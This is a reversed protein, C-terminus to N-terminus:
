NQGSNKQEMVGLIDFITIKGQHKVFLEHYLESTNMKGWVIARRILYPVPSHPDEKLLYAAIDELAAYATARNDIIQHDPKFGNTKENNYIPIDRVETNIPDGIEIPSEEQTEFQVGRKILEGETMLRIDDLLGLMLQLSPAHEACLDDLLKSLLEIQYLALILDNYLDIYFETSTASVAMYISQLVPEQNKETGIRKSERLQENRLAMEWDSWHYEGEDRGSATIPILSLVPPLKENIWSIVNTRYELDGEEIKPYLENWFRECLIRMLCICPAIGHFGYEHIQAELLWVALQLDKSKGAIADAAIHSVRQWDAKKLEHAWVGQPLSADDYRRAEKIESYVGNHRLSGGVPNESNIPSVLEQLSYGWMAETEQFYRMDDYAAPM